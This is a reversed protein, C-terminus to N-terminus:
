MTIKNELVSLKKSLTSLDSQIKLLLNTFNDQSKKGNLRFISSKSQKISVGSPIAGKDSRSNFVRANLSLADTSLASLASFLIVTFLNQNFATTHLVLGFM